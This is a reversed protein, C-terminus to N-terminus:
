AGSASAELDFGLTQQDKVTEAMRLNRAATEFYSRKLEVGVFRRGHRLAEFGESGVGAFPSLVLEGPASWLKVAREIVGLQLPCLHREDRDERAMAVNLVDTERIGGPYNESARYWVPAAWEIWEEPTIWGDTNGYRESIGAPIPHPNEGPKRFQLLYDAQAMRMHASDKALTKFLLGRDKTRIAKVQPDKDITVEGYFTFGHRTMVDITAGRFDRLGIEGGDRKRTQAQALHIAVSRGPMLVRYLEPLLYGFHEIMEEVDAVNGMDRPSNTYVYMSPFPPSFVSLGVSESEVDALREVCDGLLLRWGDGTAEDAEYTMTDRRLHERTREAMNAVIQEMMKTAQREKREINRVVAGEVDATVVYVQVPRTQGFRWCRRVAQFYREFSDSLGVFVVRACRQWNMGFGAISPKTVLVRITGDAFGLLAAEKSEPTDPGRVEVADPIAKTIAEAESNLDCWILWQEDPEAEVLDVAARVREALTNRRAERREQLTSAEMAFLTGTAHPDAHEVVVQEVNLAPLRFREDEEDRGVDGPKNLAVAWTAVWGWFDEEAHGKLRWKQTTNGDQTFYLSLMERMSMVDLFEAHTGLETYDNPAPTATACLRMPVAAGFDTLLRRTQGDFSKLISSEDLVLADIGTPSFKEIREYNTINVGPRLDAYERCVNVPVGFKEGERPTQRSVGLPAVILATKGAHAAWQLQMATKGLGTAAFVAARGRELAWAVIDRQFDFLGDHLEDAVVTRGDPLDETRKTTLFEAYDM